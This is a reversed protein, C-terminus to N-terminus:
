TLFRLFCSAVSASSYSRQGGGREADGEEARGLEGQGGEVRQELAAVLHHTHHALGITSPAAAALARRRRDGGPGQLALHRQQTGLPDAVGFHDGLEFPVGGVDAHDDGKTLEQGLAHALQRPDAVQDVRVRAQQRSM